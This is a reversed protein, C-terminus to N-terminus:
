RGRRIILEQIEIQDSTAGRVQNCSNTANSSSQCYPAAEGLMQIVRQFIPLTAQADALTQNNARVSAPEYLAFAHFFAKMGRTQETKALPAASEYYQIAQQYNKQKAFEYGAAIIRRAINDLQEDTLENNAAAANAAAVGAEIEGAEIHWLAKRANVAYAPDIQAARDLAAMAEDRRGAGNLVDAYASWLAADQPHAEVAQQGLTAAKDNQETLRYATMLNRYLNADVTDKAQVVPELYRIAKDLFPRAQETQGSNSLTSAANMAFLGAYEALQPDPADGDTMGEELIALAGEPNSARAADTALSLRVEINGPNLNLYERFWKLGGEKDGMESVVLGLALMADDNAADIEIVREFGAKAEELNGTKWKAYALSYLAAESNPTIELARTCKEIAEQWAEQETDQSCFVAWRLGEIFGEFQTALKRAADKPDTASFSELEYVESAAPSIVNVDVTYNKDGVETFEGCLVLEVAILSALQRAPICGDDNLVEEKVGYKRLADRLEGRDVSEHTAMEDILKQLEEATDKGFNERGGQKNAFTPVMVAFRSAQAAVPITAGALLALAIVPSFAISRRTLFNGNMDPTEVGSTFTM